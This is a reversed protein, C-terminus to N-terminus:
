RTSLYPTINNEMKETNDVNRMNKINESSVRHEGIQSQPIGCNTSGKCTCKELYIAAVADTGFSNPGTNTDFIRPGALIKGLHFIILM